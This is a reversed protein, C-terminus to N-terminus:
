TTHTENKDGQEKLEEKRFRPLIPNTDIGITEAFSTLGGGFCDLCFEKGWKSCEDRHRLIRSYIDFFRERTEERAQHASIRILESEFRKQCKEETEDDWGVETDAIKWAVDRVQKEKEDM